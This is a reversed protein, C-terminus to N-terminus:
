TNEGLGVSELLAEAKVKNDAVEKAEKLLSDVSDFWKKDEARLIQGIYSYQTSIIVPESTTPCTAWEDWETDLVHVSRRFPKTALGLHEGGCRPCEPLDM